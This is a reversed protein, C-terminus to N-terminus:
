VGIASSRLNFKPFFGREGSSKGCQRLLGGIGFYFSHSRGVM